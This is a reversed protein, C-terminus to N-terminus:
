VQRPTGRAKGQGAAMAADGAAEELAALLKQMSERVGRLEGDIHAVDAQLADVKPQCRRTAEASLGGANGASVSPPETASACFSDLLVAVIVNALVIQTVIVFSGFFIAPIAADPANFGFLLPRAVNECWSEGTMVQFLTYLARLFTGWYEEGYPIRRLTTASANRPEYVSVNMEKTDYLTVYTDEDNWGVERFWEVALIAYVAMVILTLVFASLVGPVSQLLNVVISHLSKVRKFLRFVRFARLMKLDNFPGLDLRAITCIGVAVVVTDFLNWGDRWFACFWLGYLNVLLELLFITNFMDDMMAWLTPYQKFPPPYPDIEKECISVIFNATIVCAITMQVPSSQYLARVQDQYPLM